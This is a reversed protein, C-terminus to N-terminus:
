KKAEKNMTNILQQVEETTGTELVKMITAEHVGANRALIEYVKKQGENAAIDGNFMGADPVEDIPTIPESPLGSLPANVKEFWEKSPNEIVEGQWEKFVGRAKEVLALHKNGQREMKILIHPEHPTGKEADMKEGIKIPENKPGTKYETSMRGLLFVHVPSYLCKTILRHYQPKIFRWATWPLSANKELSEIVASKAKKRESEIYSEQISEWIHTLQDIVVASGPPVQGLGDLIDHISRTHWVNFSFESAFPDSGHETDFVYVAGKSLTTAGILATMTKGSGPGGYIGFKCHAQTIKAPSFPM